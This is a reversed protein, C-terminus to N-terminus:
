PKKGMFAARTRSLCSEKELPSGSNLSPSGSTAATRGISLRKMSAELSETTDTENEIDVVKVVAKGELVRRVKDHDWDTRSGSPGANSSAPPRAFADWFANGLKSLLTQSAISALIAHTQTTSDSSSLSPPVTSSLRPSSPPSPYIAASSSLTTSPMLKGSLLATLSSSYRQNSLTDKEKVSERTPANFFAPRLVSALGQPTAQHQSLGKTERAQKQGAERAMRGWLQMRYADLSKFTFPNTEAFADFNSGLGASPLKTPELGSGFSGLGHIGIGGFCPLNLAPNINEQENSRNDEFLDNRAQAFLDPVLTAHVSTVGGAGFVNNGGRGGWFARAASARPSTPPLDKQTNPKSLRTSPRKSQITNAIAAPTLPAPPPLDPNARGELMARKLAEVEQRLADNELKTSGLESRIAEILSDRDAIDGELTAIYEKRRVRFNRASIKNRLQRKEKSSMKKYEEPSPRWDVEPVSKERVARDKVTATSSNNSTSRKSVGGSTVTGKRAKGKGGVKVPQTIKEDLDFEADIENDSDDSDEEEYISPLTTTHSQLRPHSQNFSDPAGVLSPDIAFVPKPPSLSTDTNGDNTMPTGPTGAGSFSGFFDYPTPSVPSTSASAIDQTVMGMPMAFNMHSPPKSFDTEPLGFDFLAGDLNASFSEPALITPPTAPPLSFFSTSPSNSGARSLSPSITGGSPQSGTFLEMNFLEEFNIPNSNSSSHANHQEFDLVTAM